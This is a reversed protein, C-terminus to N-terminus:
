MSGYFFCQFVKNDMKECDNKAVCCLRILSAIAKGGLARTDGQKVLKDSVNKIYKLRIITKVYAVLRKVQISLM